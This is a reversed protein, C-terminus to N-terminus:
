EGMVKMRPFYPIHDLEWTDIGYLKGRETVIIHKLVGDFGFAGQIGIVDCGILEKEEPTYKYDGILKNIHKNVM